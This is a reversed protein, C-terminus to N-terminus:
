DSVREVSYGAGDIAFVVIQPDASESVRVEGKDADAEVATDEGLRQKIARTVSTECGACTMGSVKYTRM